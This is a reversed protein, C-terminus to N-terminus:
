ELMEEPAVNQAGGPSVVPMPDDKCYGSMCKKAPTKRLTQM